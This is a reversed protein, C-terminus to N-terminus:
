ILKYTYDIPITINLATANGVFRISGNKNTILSILNLLTSISNLNIKFEAFSTQNPYINIIQGNITSLTGIKFQEKNLNIFYITGKLDQLNGTEKTNNKIGIRLILNQQIFSFDLRVNQIFFDLKKFLLFKKYIYAGTFFLGLPVLLKKFMLCILLFM